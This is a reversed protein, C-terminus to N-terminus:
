GTRPVLRYVAGKASTVYVEGDADLGFSTPLAVQGVQRSWNRKEVVKGKANYRLSRIRGNCFDAYFYRGRLAPIARGRYVVGGM